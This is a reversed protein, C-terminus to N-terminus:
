QVLHEASATRRHGMLSESGTAAMGGGSGGQPEPASKELKQGRGFRAAHVSRLGQRQGQGATVVGVDDGDFFNSGGPQPGDRQAKWRAPFGASRGGHRDVRLPCVTGPSQRPGRSLNAGIGHCFFFFLFIHPDIAIGGVADRVFGATADM